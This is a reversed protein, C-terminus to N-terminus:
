KWTGERGDKFRFVIAGDQHVTAMEIVMNWLYSDFETIMNGCEALTDLYLEMEMRRQRRSQLENETDQKQASAKDLRAVLEEHKRVYDDQNLARSAYEHIHSRILTDIEDIENSLKRIRKEQTETDMVVEVASRCASIIETKSTDLLM